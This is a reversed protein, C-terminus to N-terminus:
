ESNPRRSRCTFTSRGGCRHATRRVHSRFLNLRPASGHRVLCLTYGAEVLREFHNKSPPNRRVILQPPFWRSFWGGSMMFLVAAGNANETPTIVDITMALGDKHGYVVDGQIQFSEEASLPQSALCVIVIPCCLARTM